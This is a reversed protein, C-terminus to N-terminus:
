KETKKDKDTWWLYVFFGVISGIFLIIFVVVWVMDVTEAPANAADMEKTAALLPSSLLFLTIASLLKSM